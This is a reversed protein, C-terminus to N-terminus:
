ARRPASDTHVCNDFMEALSSLQREFRRWQGISSRYILQRVQTLSATVVAREVNHFDLCSENWELGLFEVMRRSEAAQDAVLAEYDVELMPSPLVARWHDMLKRYLQYYHGLWELSYIFADGSGHFNRMYCSFCTDMPDRRAHIIRANPFLQAILGLSRFNTPTKDTIRSAAGDLDRIFSLYSASIDKLEAALADRCANEAAALDNRRLCDGAKKLISSDPGAM